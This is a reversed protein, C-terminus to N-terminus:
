GTTAALILPPAHDLLALLVFEINWLSFLPAITEINV